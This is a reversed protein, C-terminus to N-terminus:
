LDFSPTMAVKAGADGMAAMTIGGTLMAVSFVAPNWTLHSGYAQVNRITSKGQVKTYRKGWIYGVAMTM